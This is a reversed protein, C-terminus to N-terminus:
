HDYNRLQLCLAWITLGNFAIVVIAWMPYHPLYAFNTLLMLSVVVLGVVQAWSTRRFLGVSVLVGAIGLILLIWGWTTMNFRYLYDSGAAYIDGNAIAALGQLINMCSSVILFAAAAAVTVDAVTGRTSYDIDRRTGTSM